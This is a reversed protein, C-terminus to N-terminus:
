ASRRFAPFRLAPLLPGVAYALLPGVLWPLASFAGAATGVTRSVLVLNVLGVVLPVVGGFLLCWLRTRNPRRTTVIGVVATYGSLIGAAVAMRTASTVSGSIALSTMGATAVLLGVAAVAWARALQFIM